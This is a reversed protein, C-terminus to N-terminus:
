EGETEKRCAQGANCPTDCANCCKDCTPHASKCIACPDEEKKEKPFLPHTGNKAQEEEDSMEYGFADLVDYVMDLRENEDYGYFYEIGNWRSSWYGSSPSDFSSYALALLTKEPFAELATKIGSIDTLTEANEVDEEEIKVGLVYSLIDTDIEASNYGGDPMDWMVDAVLGAIKGIMKKCATSTLGKIFDRRLEFHRRNVDEREERNLRSIREREEREAKAADEKTADREAYLEIGTKTLKYVYKKTDIDEPTEVEADMRYKSYSRIFQHSSYNANPDEAAFTQVAPLWEEIRKQLRQEELASKLENQFNATGMSKLLKNRTDLDDVKALEDFDSLTLQRESVKKLTKSDLKAIELRRRVTTKSFGSKESIEELSSGMDLMMQFGQAQEYVTLDSRQMNELLMTQVQEKPTMEVVVCPVESIGALMAAAHRRHGIVITFKTYSNTPDDPVVTLNQYIGNTKISDALESLDGLEKRPNDPHPHLRGVPLFIMKSVEAPHEEPATDEEDEDDEMDAMEQEELQRWREERLREQDQIVLEERANAHYYDCDLEHGIHECKKRECEVSLPCRENLVKKAM